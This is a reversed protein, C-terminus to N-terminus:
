GRTYCEAATHYYQQRESDPAESGCNVFADAAKAFARQQESLPAIGVTARALERFHYAEAIRLTASTISYHAVQNQGNKLLRLSQWILPDKGPTCTQIQSRSAWFMRMPEAKASKDVIWMNKRARTMEVYLDETCIGAYRIEDREFCPARLQSRNHGEVVGDIIALVLRWRSLDMNSDEFFNYLLVDNFELGKSEYLTRGCNAQQRLNEKAKEDRVLIGDKDWGTFFVPKLGDVIGREPQLLDISDPWFRSILEIVSHACNVIGGHSRYSVALQFSEPSSVARERVMPSAQGAEILYLFAKLDDFRFSSGASITQATDGAWFLGDPNDGIAVHSFCVFLTSSCTTKHKMLLFDAQPGKLPTGGLLVKLIAHTRDAADHHQRQRKLKTYSKKKSQFVDPKLMILSWLLDEYIMDLAGDHFGLSKESGKIVGIMEGFVLWPDQGKTLRQHFHPWYKNVFVKYSVFSDLIESDCSQTFLMAICNVEPHNADLIDAAIMGTSHLFLPFHRDELESYRQPIGSQTDPVDDSDVLGRDVYRSKRRALEELTYGVLSLSELLTMFHEEVKNALVHSKTVFIQRPRPKDSGESHLLWERQIGLMKFLMITTKGTGSRGLVCCSTTCEVIKRGQPFFMIMKGPDDHIEFRQALGVFCMEDMEQDGLVLPPPKVVVKHVEPPFIAPLYVQSPLDPFNEAKM